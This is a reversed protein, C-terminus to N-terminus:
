ADALEPNLEFLLELRVKDSAFPTKRRLGDVARDLAQHAKTLDPPMTLPNFSEAPTRSGGHRGPRPTM